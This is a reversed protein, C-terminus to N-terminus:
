LDNEKEKTPGIKAKKTFFNAMLNKSATTANSKTSPSGNTTKKAKKKESNPTAGVTDLAVRKKGKKSKSACGSSARSSNETTESPQKEFEDLQQIQYWM